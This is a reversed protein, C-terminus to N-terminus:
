VDRGYTHFANWVLPTAAKFFVEMKDAVAAIEAQPYSKVKADAHKTRLSLFHMLNRMNMTMYLQTYMNVPLPGRAVERAVGANLMREYAEYAVINAKKTEEVVIDYQEETGAIFEYAGAKGIQQLARERSPIYFAPAMKSYRASAENFAATRHRVLERSVFIPVNVYFTFSSHEFPSMHRERLLFNILGQGEKTNSSSDQKADFEYASPNISERSREGQTSVRAAWLVDSDSANSKVLEVDVDSRFIIKNTM